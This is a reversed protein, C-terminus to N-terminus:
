RRIRKRSSKLKITYSVPKRGNTRYTKHDVKTDTIVVPIIKNDKLDHLYIRTSQLLNTALNSAEVDSLWGTSIEYQREVDMTYIINEFENTYNKVGRSYSHNTLSDSLKVNYECLYSDWGGYSNQYYLAYDGCYDGGGIVVSNTVVNSSVSTSFCLMTGNKHGNIPYSMSKSGGNWDVYSWDWLFRYTELLTSGSYLKFEKCAETNTVSTSATATLMSDPLDNGMFNRAISSINVELIAASPLRVAKGIFVTDNGVKINYDLSATSATYFTDKWIPANVM